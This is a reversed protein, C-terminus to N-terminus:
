IWTTAGWFSFQIETGKPCDCVECKLFSVKSEHRWVLNKLGSYHSAPPLQGQKYSVSDVSFALKVQLEDCGPVSNCFFSLSFLTPKQGARQVYPLKLPKNVVSTNEQDAWQQTHVDLLNVASILPSHKSVSETSILSNTEFRFKIQFNQKLFM